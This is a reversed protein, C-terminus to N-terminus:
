GVIGRESLLADTGCKLENCRKEKKMRRGDESADIWSCVGAYGRRNNRM